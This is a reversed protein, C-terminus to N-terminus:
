QTAWNHGVRKCGSPSYDVLGRQGHSTRPLCVLTCQWKKKWPDEQGLSRVQTGLMAPSEKGSLWWPLETTFFIYKYLYMYMYINVYMSYILIFLSVPFYQYLVYINSFVFLKQDSLGLLLFETNHVRWALIYKFYIHIGRVRGSWTVDLHETLIEGMILITGKYVLLIWKM